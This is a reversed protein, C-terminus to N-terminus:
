PRQSRDIRGLLVTKRPITLHTIRDIVIINRSIIGVIHNGSIATKRSFRLYHWTPCHAKPLAPFTILRLFLHKGRKPFKPLTTYREIIDNEIPTIPGFICPSAMFKICGTKGIRFAHDIRNMRLMGSHHNRHPRFKVHGGPMKFFEITFTPHIPLGDFITYAVPYTGTIDTRKVIGIGFPSPFKKPFLHLVM